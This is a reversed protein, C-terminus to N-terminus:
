VDPSFFFYQQSLSFKLICFLFFSFLSHRSSPCSLCPRSSYAIKCMSLKLKKKKKKLVFYGEPICLNGKRTTGVLIYPKSDGM